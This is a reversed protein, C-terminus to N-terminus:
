QCDIMGIKSMELVTDIKLIRFVLEEVDWTDKEFFDFYYAKINEDWDINVLSQQKGTLCMLCDIAKTTKPEEKRYLEEFYKIFKDRNIEARDFEPKNTDTKGSKGNEDKEKAYRDIFDIQDKGNFEYAIIRKVGREISNQKYGVANIFAEDSRIKNLISM